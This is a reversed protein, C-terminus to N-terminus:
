RCGDLRDVVDEGHKVHQQLCGHLPLDHVLHGARDSHQGHWLCRRRKVVEIDKLPQHVGSTLRVPLGVEDDQKTALRSQPTALHHRQFPWVHVEGCSLEAHPSGIPFAMDGHWLTPSLAIHGERNPQRPRQFRIPMQTARPHQALLVASRESPLRHLAPHATHCSAGPDRVGAHMHELVREARMQRHSTSRCPGDLFQGPM